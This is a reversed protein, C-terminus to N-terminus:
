KRNKKILGLLLTLFLLLIFAGSFMVAAFYEQKSANAHLFDYTNGGNMVVLSYILIFFAVILGLIFILEGIVNNREPNKQSNNLSM